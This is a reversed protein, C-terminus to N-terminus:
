RVRDATERVMTERYQQYQDQPPLDAPIDQLAKLLFQHYLYMCRICTYHTQQQRSPIEWAQNMSGSAAKDGCYYCKAQHIASFDPFGPMVAAKACEDCLSRNTTTGHIIECIFHNAPRTGCEDCLPPIASEASSLKAPM